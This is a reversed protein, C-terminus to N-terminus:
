RYFCDLTELNLRKLSDHLQQDLFTPHLCHGTEKVIESEPIEFEEILKKTM